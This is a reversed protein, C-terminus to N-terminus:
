FLDFAATFDAAPIIRSVEYLVSLYANTNIPVQPESLYLLKSLTVCGQLPVMVGLGKEGLQILPRPGPLPFLCTWGRGQVHTFVSGALFPVQGLDCLLTRGM